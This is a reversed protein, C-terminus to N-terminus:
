HFIGIYSWWLYIAPVILLITIIALVSMIKAAESASVGGLAMGVLIPPIQYPFIPTSFGIVQTMIVAKLSFGASVAIDQALPTMVAPLGPGDDGLKSRHEAICSM